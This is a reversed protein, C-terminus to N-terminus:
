CGFCLVAVVGDHRYEGFFSCGGALLLEARRLAVSTRRGSTSRSQRSDASAQCRTSSKM